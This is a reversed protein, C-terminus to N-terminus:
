RSLILKEIIRQKKEPYIVELFYIGNKYISIDLQNTNKSIEVLKGIGNYLHLTPNNLNSGQINIIGNSPNPFISIKNDEAQEQTSTSTNLDILYPEFGINEGFAFVFLKNKFKHFDNPNSIEPQNFIIKKTGENTGDSIWLEQRSGVSAASMYVVEGDSYLPEINGFPSIVSNEKIDKVLETGEPTGDSRYLAAGLIGDNGIYYMKNNLLVKSCPEYGETGKWLDKVLTTGEKTGNTKWIEIGYEPDRIPLLAIDDLTIITKDDRGFLSESEKLLYTGADTGDSVWLDYDSILLMYDNLVAIEQFAIDFILQTGNDTGDTKWLKNAARFYVENKFTVFNVPFSPLNFDENDPAINKVLITGESTGDTKWLEYNQEKNQGAFYISNEVQHYAIFNSNLLFVGDGTGEFIDIIMKTGEPTGDTEWWEAGFDKSYATFVVKNNLLFYNQADSSQLGPNIDKIMFTTDGNFIWPEVGHTNSFASFILFDKFTIINNARGGVISSKEGQNIDALLEAKQGYTLNLVASLTLLILLQKRLEKM